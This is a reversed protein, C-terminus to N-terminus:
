RETRLQYNFLLNNIDAGNAQGLYVRRLIREGPSNKRFNFVWEVIESITGTRDVPEGLSDIGFLKELLEEPHYEYRLLDEKAAKQDLIRKVYGIRHARTSYDTHDKRTEREFLLEERSIKGQSLLVARELLYELGSNVDRDMIIRRLFNEYFKKEFICREGKKSEPDAMGQMILENNIEGAFKGRMSSLFTGKGLVVGLGSSNVKAIFDDAKAADYPFLFLEHNMNIPPNEKMLAYAQNLAEAVKGRHTELEKKSFGLNFEMAFWNEEIDMDSAKFLPYEALSELSTLLRFKRKADPIKSIQEYVEEVASDRILMNKFAKQFPFMGVLVGQSIGKTINLLAQHNAKSRSLLECYLYDISSFDDFPIQGPEAPKDDNDTSTKLSTSKIRAKVSSLSRWPYTHKFRWAWRVWYDESITRRSVSDIRAPLSANMEGLLIHELKLAECIMYSKMGDQAAYYLIELADKKSGKEAHMTKEALEIHTMTKKSGFGCVARFVTDLKNNYNKMYNRSYGSADIDLRGPLIKQVIFSQAAQSIHLPHTGEVGLALNQTLEEAKGYDFKM